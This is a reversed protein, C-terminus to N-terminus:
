LRGEDWSLMGDQERRGSDSSEEEMAMEYLTSTSDPIDLRTSGCFWLIGYGIWQEM